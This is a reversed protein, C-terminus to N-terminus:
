EGSAIMRVVGGGFAVVMTLAISGVRVLRHTQQFSQKRSKHRLYRQGFDAGPWGWFLAFSHLQRESLRWYRGAAFKDIAYCAMTIASMWLHGAALIGLRAWPSTVLALGLVTVVGVVGLSPIWTRLLYLIHAKLNTRELTAGVLEDLRHSHSWCNIMASWFGAAVALCAIAVLGANFLNSLLYTFLPAVIATCSFLAAVMSIMEQRRDSELGPLFIYISFSGVCVYAWGTAVYFALWCRASGADSTLSIGNSAVHVLHVIFISLGGLVSVLPITPRRFIANIRRPWAIGHVVLTTLGIAFLAWGAFTVGRWECIVKSHTMLNARTYRPNDIVHFCTTVGIWIVVVAVFPLGWDLLCNKLRLNRRKRSM